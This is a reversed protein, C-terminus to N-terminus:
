EIEDADDDYVKVKTSKHVKKGHGNDGNDSM